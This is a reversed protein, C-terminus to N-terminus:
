NRDIPSVGYNAASQPAPYVPHVAFIVLVYMSTGYMSAYARVSSCRQICKYVCECVSEGSVSVLSDGVKVMGNQAAPGGKTLRKVSFSGNISCTLAIGVGGVCDM